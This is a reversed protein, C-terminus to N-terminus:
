LHSFCVSSVAIPGVQARLTESHSFYTLSEFRRHNGLSSPILSDLGLFEVQEGCRSKGLAELPTIPQGPPYFELGLGAVPKDM